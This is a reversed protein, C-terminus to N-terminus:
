KIRKITENQILFEGPFISTKFTLDTGDVYELEGTGSFSGIKVTTGNQKRARICENFSLTSRDDFNIPVNISKLNNISKLSIVGEYVSSEHGFILMIHPTNNFKMNELLAIKGSIKNESEMLFNNISKM